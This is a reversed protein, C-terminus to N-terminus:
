LTKIFTLLKQREDENPLRGYGAKMNDILHHPKSTGPIVCTVAPHSIIYKLFLQGWSHIDLDTCWDPLTKGRTLRFLSGGDYPRNIIVATGHEKATDLLKIEANRENISYNFQAFDPRENKIIDILTNHSANTYHTIGWYKIKGKEKWDRLTKVHTKWDVLNHIQMLDMQQRKMKRFSSNMQEIGMTRGSTWVKTAYFFDDQIGAKYTLDGVVNESSGYMPSSDILQGGLAKMQKLVETLQARDPTNNGVDFSQWTGLGIVPIYGGSSPIKRKMISNKNFSMLSPLVMIGISAFAMLKSAERRSLTNM